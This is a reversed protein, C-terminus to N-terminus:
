KRIQTGGRGNKVLIVFPVTFGTPFVHQRLVFESFTEEWVTRSPAPSTVRAGAARAFVTGHFWAARKRASRRVPAKGCVVGILLCESTLALCRRPNGPRRSSRDAEGAPWSRALSGGRCLRRLRRGRGGRTVVSAPGRRRSLAAGRLRRANKSPRVASEHKKGGILKMFTVLLEMRRM